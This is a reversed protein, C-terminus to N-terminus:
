RKKSYAEALTEDAVRLKKGLAIALNRYLIVAIDPRRRALAELSARSLLAVSTAEQTVATASHALEALTANEGVVRGPGLSGLEVATSLAIDVSGDLIIFVEQAPDGRKFLVEEADFREVTMASALRRSQEDSLGEFIPIAEISEAIQPLV